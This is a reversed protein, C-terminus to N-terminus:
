LFGQSEPRRPSLERDHSRSSTPLCSMTRAPWCRRPRPVFARWSKPTSRPLVRRRVWGIWPVISALAPKETTDWGTIRWQWSSSTSLLSLGNCSEKSKELAAIADAFRGSRYLAVGLTNLSVQEEPALAVSFTAMRAALTPNREPEPGTALRWAVNNLANELGFPARLSEPDIQFASELVDLAPAYRKLNFLCIGVYTRLHADLPRLASAASFDALAQDFRRLRLLAHGRQHLADPDDPPVRLRESCRAVLDEPAVADQEAHTNFQEVMARLLGYDIQQPPLAPASRDAPDDESFAPADWDLGMEALHKRIARLDWVHVAPGDNTSVM